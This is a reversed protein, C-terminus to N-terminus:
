VEYPVVGQALTKLRTAASMVDPQAYIASVVAVGYIGTNALLPLNEETIGGIAVIPLSVAGCITKLEAVSVNSADAKTGTPFVAGVGLYDAGNQQALLAQQTTQVSVGLIKHMGIRERATRAELDCQGIHLGDADSALAVDIDDNIILPVNYAHCITKIEQALQLFQEFGLEKERLQVLTAGGKLSQEVQSSLTRGNLWARDTVAYLLLSHKDFKM